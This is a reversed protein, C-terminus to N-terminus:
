RKASRRADIHMLMTLCKEPRARELVRCLLFVFQSPQPVNVELSLVSCTSWTICPQKWLPPCPRSLLCSPWLQRSAWGQGSGQSTLLPYCLGSRHEPPGDQFKGPAEKRGLPLNSAQPIKKDVFVSELSWYGLFKPHLNKDGLLRDKGTM